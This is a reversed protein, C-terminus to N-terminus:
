DFDNDQVATRKRFREALSIGDRVPELVEPGVMEDPELVPFRSRERAEDEHVHQAGVAPDLVM